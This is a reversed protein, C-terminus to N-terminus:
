KMWAATVQPPLQTGGDCLSESYLVHSVQSAERLGLQLLVKSFFCPLILWM